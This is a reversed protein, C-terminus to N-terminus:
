RVPIRVSGKPLRPESRSVRFTVPTGIERWKGPRWRWRRLAATACADLSPFGTSRVIQVQTVAGTNPALSLRFYGKGEHHEARDRYPYDPSISYVRDVMWPMLKEPYDKGSYRRGKLDVAAGNGSEIYASRAQAFVSASPQSLLVVVATILSRTNM